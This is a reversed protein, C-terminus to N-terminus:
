AQASGLCARWARGLAAPDWHDWRGLVHQDPRILYTVGPAGGYRVGARGERDVLV